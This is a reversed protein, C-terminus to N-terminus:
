KSIKGTSSQGSSGLSVHRRVAKHDNERRGANREPTTESTTKSWCPQSVTNGAAPVDPRTATSLLSIAPLGCSCFLSLFRGDRKM